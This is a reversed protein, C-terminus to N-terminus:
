ARSRASMGGTAELEPCRTLIEKLRVCDKDSLNEPDRMIWGTVHRIKPPAPSAPTVSAAPTAHGARFPRLYRYVTQASGRYGQERIEAVLRTINM